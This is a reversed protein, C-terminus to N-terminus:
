EDVVAGQGCVLQLLQCLRVRGSESESRTRCRATHTTSSRYTLSLLTRFQCPPPRSPASHAPPYNPVSYRLLGRTMRTHPKFLCSSLTLSARRLLPVASASAGLPTPAGVIPARPANTALMACGASLSRTCSQQQSASPLHLQSMISLTAPHNPPVFGYRRQKAAVCRVMLPFPLPPPFRCLGTAAGLAAGAEPRDHLFSGARFRDFPSPAVRASVACVM